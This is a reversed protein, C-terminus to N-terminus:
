QKCVKLLSLPIRRRLAAVTHEIAFRDSYLKGAHESLAAREGVDNSLDRAARIFAARDGAPVIRVALSTKWIDETEASYTTVIPLGLGLAATISGRRTTVGDEYPQLLVDCAKLHNAVSQSSLSGVGHVRGKLHPKQAVLDAAFRESGRGLLLATGLSDSLLSELIANLEVRAFSERYTGFHGFIPQNDESAFKQRIHATALADNSLAVNSCVPTWDVTGRPSGLRRILTEWLPTSVFIADSAAIVSQAMSTTAMALLRYKLPTDNKVTISVEHFMTFLPYGSLRRLWLAFPINAGRLGFSQPVYQLVATRPKPVFSLLSALAKRGRFGFTDPLRHVSVGTIEFSTDAVDCAPSFVFVRDGQDALRRALMYTYDAVGGLQPPYEGAILVWNMKM